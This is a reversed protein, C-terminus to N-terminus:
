KKKDFVLSISIGFPVRVKSAIWIDCIFMFRLLSNFRGSVATADAYIGPRFVNMFKKTVLTPLFLFWNFYGVEIIEIDEDAFLEVLQRLRYRRQHGAQRDHESWLVMYAPVTIVARGNKKLVRVIEKAATRDDPVHELVDGLLLYDFTENSFPLSSADVLVARSGVLSRCMELAERDADAIYSREVGLEQFVELNNGAGPGIELASIPKQIRTDTFSKRFKGKRGEIWWNSNGASQQSLLIGTNMVGSPTKRM